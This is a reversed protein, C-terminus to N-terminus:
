PQAAPANTSPKALGSPNTRRPDRLHPQQQQKLLEAFQAQQEPTLVANFEAKARALEEKLSPTVPEMIKRTREQSEKLIHDIKERQEPTLNLERQARRLFEGRLGGPYSVAATHTQNTGASSHASRPPRMVQTHRVLLGGTVVGTGFIVMTALIVKWYNM